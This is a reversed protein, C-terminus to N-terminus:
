KVDSAEVPLCCSSRGALPRARILHAIVDQGFGLQPSRLWTTGVECCLGAIRDGHHEIAHGAIVVDSGHEPQAVCEQDLPQHDAAIGAPRQQALPLDDLRRGPRLALTPQVYTYFYTM